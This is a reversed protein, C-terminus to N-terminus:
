GDEPEDGPTGTVPICYAGDLWRGLDLMRCRESCFPRHAREAEIESLPKRCTPCLPHPGTM